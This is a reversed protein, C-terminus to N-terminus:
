PERNYAMQATDTLRHPAVEYQGRLCECLEAYTKAANTQERIRAAGKLGRVYWAVHKRMERMAVAEGKLALLMRAHRLAMESRERAAPQKGSFLWPNGMAGRGIMVGDCGTQAQMRRADELSAADGNGIVPISVARKLRAIADWDARGAYFQRRTRAHLTLAAVGVGELRRGLEEYVISEEDWGMRLKVTVPLRVARVVASAIEVALAPERLLGSGEGGSAIKPAPCGMNVDVLCFGGSQTLEQAARAMLEPEKGFIQLAVPGEATSTLLLERAARNGKPALLMGKASVMETYTLSCGMERCLLRFPYDTVGAMPALFVNGKLHVSGIHM